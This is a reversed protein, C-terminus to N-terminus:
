HFDLRRDTDRVNLGILATDVVLDILDHKYIRDPGFPLANNLNRAADYLSLHSKGIAAISSFGNSPSVGFVPNPSFPQLLPISRSPGYHASASEPPSSTPSTVPIVGTPDGRALYM